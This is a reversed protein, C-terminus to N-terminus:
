SREADARSTGSGAPESEGECLGAFLEVYDLLHRPLLFRERVTERGHEGLRRRLDDDELLRELRDAAGDVDDPDVLYGNEGDEIQLPIGGVNSGIVPTEKWLAEAVVLGFGERFSKQVVVASERQLFNITTDPQNTLLHVDPDDATEGEIEEYVEQGEPDDDAMGGALVLQAGPIADKVQRYMEITGFQDKWPDFRSVHTIVPSDDFELPSLRNREAAVEDPNLPRNKEALPDISPHVISMPVDIGRAYERRSFVAHDVERVDDVVSRLRRDNADTLDIHCRWVIRADPVRDRLTGVMGLTQPDHLVIVDYERELTTANRETVRRYTAEMAETIEVDHGQLANHMAKTVEFFPEDADMVRWDTDIGLDNSLPVLSRLIEAVGGGTATSNLHLVRVDDLGDALSYLAELQDAPALAEYDAMSRATTVPSNM